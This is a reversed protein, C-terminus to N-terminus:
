RRGQETLTHPNVCITARPECLARRVQLHFQLQSVLVPFQRSLIQYFHSFLREYVAQITTLPSVSHASVFSISLVTATTTTTTTTTTISTSTTTTTTTTTTSINKVICLIKRPIGYILRMVTSRVFVHQSKDLELSMVVCNKLAVFCNGQFVWVSCDIFM